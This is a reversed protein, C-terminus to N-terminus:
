WILLLKGRNLDAGGRIMLGSEFWVLLAPNLVFVILKDARLPSKKIIKSQNSIIDM